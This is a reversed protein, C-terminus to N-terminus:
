GTMSHNGLYYPKDHSDTSYPKLLHFEADDESEHVMLWFKGNKEMVQSCGITKLHVTIIRGRIIGRLTWRLAMVKQLQKM